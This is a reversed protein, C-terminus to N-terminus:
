IKDRNGWVYNPFHDMHGCERIRMHRYAKLDAKKESKKEGLEWGLCIEM